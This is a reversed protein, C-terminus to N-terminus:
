EITQHGEAQIDSLLYSVSGDDYRILTHPEATDFWASETLQHGSRDDWTLNVRWTVYNGAPTWVPEGGVIHLFASATVLEGSQEAYVLTPRAGYPLQFPLGGMRWAWERSALRYDSSASSASSAKITERGEADDDAIAASRPQPYVLHYTEDGRVEHLSISGLQLDPQSWRATMSWTTPESVLAGNLLEALGGPGQTPEWDLDGLPGPLEGPLNFGSHNVECNFVVEVRSHETRTCVAKGHERGLRDQISYHWTTTGMWSSSTSLTLRNNLIKEPYRNLVVESIGAYAFVGVLVLAPIVWGWRAASHPPVTNSTVTEDLESSRWLLWLALVSLPTALAGLCLLMGGIAGVARAPLFSTSVLLLTAIANFGAHVVIAPIIAGTRWAIFGLALAVPVLGLFGQFRLHYASFLVGGVLIGLWPRPAEHAQQIYGRFMLEECVPAILVTTVTLLIAQWGDAPYQAPSVSTTYGLVLSSLLNLAVGAIWLGPVAALALWITRPEPRRLRLTASVSLREIRAFILMLVVLGLEVAIGITYRLPTSVQPRSTVVLVGIGVLLYLHAALRTPHRQQPTM